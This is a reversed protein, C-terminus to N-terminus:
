ETPNGDGSGGEGGEGGEGGTPPKPSQDPKKGVIEYNLEDTLSFHGESVTHVQKTEKNKVKFTKVKKKAM